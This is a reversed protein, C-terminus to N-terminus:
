LQGEIFTILTTIAIALWLCSALLLGFVKWFPAQFSWHELRELRSRNDAEPDYMGARFGTVLAEVHTVEAPGYCPVGYAKALQKALKADACNLEVPYAYEARYGREHEIVRGWLAVKGWARNPPSPHYGAMKDKHAYIGCSCNRDPCEQHPPPPDARVMVNAGPIRDSSIVTGDENEGPPVTTVLYSKGAATQMWMDRGAAAQMWMDRSIPLYLNIYYYHTTQPSTLSRPMQCRCVALMPICPVWHEDGSIAQLVGNKVDWERYAIIPEALDPTSM